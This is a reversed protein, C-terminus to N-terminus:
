EASKFINVNEFLTTNKFGDGAKVLTQMSGDVSTASVKFMWQLPRDNLWYYSRRTTVPTKKQMEFTDYSLILTYFPKSRITKHKHM